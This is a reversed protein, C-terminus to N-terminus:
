PPSFCAACSRVGRGPLTLVRHGPVRLTLEYGAAELAPVYSTENDANAVTVVVEVGQGGNATSPPSLPQVRIAVATLVATLVGWEPVARDAPDTDDDLLVFVREDGERRSVPEAASDVQHNMPGSNGGEASRVPRSM